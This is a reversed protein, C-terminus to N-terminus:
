MNQPWLVSANPNEERLQQLQLPDDCGRKIYWPTTDECGDDTYLDCTNTFSNQGIHTSYGPCTGLISVLVRGIGLCMGLFLLAVLGQGVAIKIRASSTVPLLMVHRIYRSYTYCIFSLAIVKVIFAWLLGEDVYLYAGISGGIVAFFLDRKTTLFRRGVKFMLVVGVTVFPILYGLVILIEFVSGIVTTIYQEIVATM